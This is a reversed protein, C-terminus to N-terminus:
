KSSSMMKEIEIAAERVQPCYHVRLLEGEWVSGAYVNTAEVDNAFANFVGDGKREETHWLSSIRRGHHKSVQNMLALTALASKEPLQLSTTM